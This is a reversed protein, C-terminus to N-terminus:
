QGLLVSVSNGSRNVVVLDLKANPDAPDDDFYGTAAAVPNKSTGLIVELPPGFTGDGVGLYATVSQTEVATRFNPIVLEPKADGNFDGVAIGQPELGVPFRTPAAFGGAGDNLFISVTGSENNVVALDPTGDDDFDESILAVPRHIADSGVSFSVPADFTGDGNGSLLSIKNILSNAVVLDLHADGDVDLAVMGSPSTEAPFLLPTSFGGMGDGLLISTKGVGNIVAAVAVDDNGDENFDAVVLDSPFTRSNDAPDVWINFSVAAAFGSGNNLLLTMTGIASNSVALDPKGDENFDGSALYQPFGQVGGPTAPFHVAADFTGDGNGILLSVEHTAFNVVALDFLNDADFKGVVVDNPSGGSRVPFESPQGLFPLIFSQDAGYSTGRSNTAVIRYHYPTNPLLGTLSDSISVFTSGGPKTQATTTGGYATTVGWEFYVTTTGSFGLPNVEGHLVASGTKLIDSPPLTVVAPPPTPIPMASAENSPLSEGIANEATLIYYYTINNALGTHTYSTGSLNSIKTGTGPTVGATTSWYVNYFQAGAAANWHLIVESDAASATLNTPQVPVTEAAFPTASVEASEVSQGLSNLATVVFFYTTGNTLNNEIHVTAGGPVQTRNGGVITNWNNRNIGSVTARYVFYSSAGAVSNWELTVQGDSPTARLGTPASPLATAMPTASVESSEASEGAANVATVVFYYTTGDILDSKTFPGAAVPHRNGSPLTEYNAKTVGSSAAVYVNYSTAGAVTDWGVTVEGSFATVTV